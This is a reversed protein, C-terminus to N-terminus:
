LKEQYIRRVHWSSLTKGPNYQPGLKDELKKEVWRHNKWRSGSKDYISEPMYVIHDRKVDKSELSNPTAYHVVECIFKRLM